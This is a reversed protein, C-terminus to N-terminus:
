DELELATFEPWPSRSFHVSKQISSFGCHKSKFTSKREGQGDRAALKKYMCCFQFNQRISEERRIVEIIDRLNEGAM